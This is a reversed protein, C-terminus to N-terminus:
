NKPVSSENGGPLNLLWSCRCWPTLLQPIRCPSPRLCPPLPRAQFPCSLSLPSIPAWLLGRWSQGAWKWRGEGPQGYRSSAPRRGLLLACVNHYCMVICTNVTLFPSFYTSNSRYCLASLIISEPALTSADSDVTGCKATHGQTCIKVERHRVTGM